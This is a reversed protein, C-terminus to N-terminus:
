AGESELRAVDALDQPRGVAKKNVILHQRSIVPVRLGEVDVQMRHAWADAFDVGDVSTLLDIRRPAVGIQIVRAPMLLEDAGISSGPAGFRALARRVKVANEPSPRVWIDLDATARPIGHVAVAYAGVLLFEANEDSLASLMDRFDPNLM